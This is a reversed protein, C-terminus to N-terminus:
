EGEGLLAEIEDIIRNLDNASLSDLKHFHAEVLAGPRLRLERLRARAEELTRERGQGLRRRIAVTAAIREQEAAAFAAVKAQQQAARIREQMRTALRRADVGTERAASEMEDKDLPVDDLAQEVVDALDADTRVTKRNM